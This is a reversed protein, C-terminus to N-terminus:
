TALSVGTALILIVTVISAGIWFARLDHSHDYRWRRLRDGATHRPRSTWPMPMREWRRAM